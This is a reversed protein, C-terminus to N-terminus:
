KKVSINRSDMLDVKYETEVKEKSDPTEALGKLISIGYVKAVRYHLIAKKNLGQRRFDDGTSKEQFAIKLRVKNTIIAKSRSMSELGPEVSENLEVETLQEACKDLIGAARKEYATSLEKFLDRIKQFNDALKQAAEAYELKYFHVSGNKYQEGLKDLEGKKDPAFNNVMVRALRLNRINMKMYIEASDRNKVRDLYSEVLEPDKNKASKENDPAPSVPGGLVLALTLPLIVRCHGGCVRSFPISFFRTLNAM